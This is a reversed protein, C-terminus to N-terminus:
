SEEVRKAFDRLGRAYDRLERCTSRKRRAQLYPVDVSDLGGCISLLGMIREFKELRVAEARAPTHTTGGGFVRAILPRLRAMPRALRRTADIEALADQALTLDAATLDDREALLVAYRIQRYSQISLGLSKAIAESTESGERALGARVLVGPPTGQPLMMPRGAPRKETAAGHGLDAPATEANVAAKVARKIEARSPEEGRAAQAHATRAVIGPDAQEAKSM